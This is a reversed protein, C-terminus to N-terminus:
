ITNYTGPNAESETSNGNKSKFQRILTTTKLLTLKFGDNILYPFDTWFSHHPLSEM